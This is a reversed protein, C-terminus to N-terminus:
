AVDSLLRHPAPMRGAGLTARDQGVDSWFEDFYVCSRYFEHWSRSIGPRYRLRFRGVETWCQEFDASNPFVHSRISWIDGAKQRIQVFTWRFQGAIWWVQCTRCFEASVPWTQGRKAPSRGSDADVDDFPLASEALTAGSRAALTTNDTEDDRGAEFNRRPAM